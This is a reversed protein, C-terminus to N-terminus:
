LQVRTPDMRPGTPDPIPIYVAPRTPKPDMFLSGLGVTTIIILVQVRAETLNARRALEERLFADPYHTKEFIQELAALQRSNFTTRSRRPKVKASVITATTTSETPM